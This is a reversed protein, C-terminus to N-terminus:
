IWVHTLRQCRAGLDILEDVLEKPVIYLENFCHSRDPHEVEIEGRIHSWHPSMSRLVVYASIAEGM